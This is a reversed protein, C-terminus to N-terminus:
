GRLARDTCRSVAEIGDADPPIRLVIEYRRWDTTGRVRGEEDARVVSSLRQSGRPAQTVRGHRNPQEFRRQRARNIRDTDGGEGAARGTAEGASQGQAAFALGCWALLAPALTM